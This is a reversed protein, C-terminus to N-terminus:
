GIYIFSKRQKTIQGIIVSPFSAHKNFEKVFTKARDPPLAILLGGSTQADAALLKQNHTLNKHFFTHPSVFQLNRKTGGPVIGREVTETAGSLIPLADFNVDASVQSAQCMELLHILLGFGSVDTAAHAGLQVMLDSATNNLATMSDTAQQIVGLEAVGAKIATAIVGTGLPKTLVLLDGPQATSNRIMKKINVRGTAVLGYKPEKDDISHGGVISIGAERAKDSGGRLIKELVEFPLIGSPFAVINLAFMPSAGMAYLDSLTNAAAIQGFDYPDDVIPTFFDVTQVIADEGDLRVVAADDAGKFGM